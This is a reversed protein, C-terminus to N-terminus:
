EMGEEGVHDRRNGHRGVWLGGVFDIRNGRKLSTQANGRLRGQTQPSYHIKWKVALIWKYTLVNM